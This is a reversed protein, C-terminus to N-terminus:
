ALDSLSRVILDTDQNELERIIHLYTNQTTSTSSHGLRKAVSATSVGAFLLVSAHTHRLGHISIIPIDLSRCLIELHDNVTSNYVPRDDSIFIPLESDLGKLLLSFHSITQKDLPIKRVSSRNKTPLFGGGGKYDWTKSISLTKKEFDFDNPTLALAESFRIGTKAMLYILCDCNIGTKLNLAKLLLQLETQSLYKVKKKLVPSRGKVVIKRVPNGSILGEDIADIVAGKVNHHFDMVTQREHEKAYDNIMQQYVQRTMDCVRIKPILKEIWQLAMEYKKLTVDRVANEKYLSVWQRYYVSFLETKKIEKM